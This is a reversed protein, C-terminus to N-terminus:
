SEAGALVRPGVRDVVDGAHHDGARVRSPVPSHWDAVRAFAAEDAEELQLGADVDAAYQAIM